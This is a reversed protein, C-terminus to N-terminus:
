EGTARLHPVPLVRLVDHARRRPASVRGLSYTARSEHYQWWRACDTPIRCAGGSTQRQKEAAANTSHSDGSSDEEPAPMM